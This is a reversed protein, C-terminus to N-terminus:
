GIEVDSVVPQAIYWGRQPLYHNPKRYWTPVVWGLWAEFPFVDNDTLERDGVPGYLSITQYASILNRDDFFEATTALIMYNQDEEVKEGLRYARCMVPLQKDAAVRAAVEHGFLAEIEDAVLYIEGQAIAMTMWQTRAILEYAKLVATGHFKWPTHSNFPIQDAM